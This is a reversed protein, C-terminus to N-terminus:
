NTVFFLISSFRSFKAVKVFQDKVTITTMFKVRVRVSIRIGLRFTSGSQPNKGKLRKGLLVLVFNFMSFSYIIVVLRKCGCVVVLKHYNVSDFLLEFMCFYALLSKVKGLTSM